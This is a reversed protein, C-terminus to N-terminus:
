EFVLGFYIRVVLYFLDAIFKLNFRELVPIQDRSRCYETRCFGVGPNLPYTVAGIQYEDKLGKLTFCMAESTAPSRVPTVQLIM